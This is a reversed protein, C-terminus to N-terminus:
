AVVTPSAKRKVSRMAAGLGGVGVLMLAWSAPEPAASVPLGVYINALVGSPTGVHDDYSTESLGSPDLGEWGVFGGTANNSPTFVSSIVTGAGSNYAPNAWTATMTTKFNGVFSCLAYPQTCGPNTTTQGYEDDYDYAFLNGPTTSGLWNYTLSTGATITGLNASQTIGNNLGQYGLLTLTVNNFDYATSNSIVLYPTDYVPGDYGGDITSVLVGGALAKNSQAALVLAALAVSALFRSKM